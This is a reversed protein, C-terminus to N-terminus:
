CVLPLPVQRLGNANLSCTKKSSNGGTAPATRTLPNTIDALILKSGPLFVFKYFMKTKM